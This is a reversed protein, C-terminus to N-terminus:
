SIGSSDAPSLNSDLLDADAMGVCFGSGPEPMHGSKGCCPCIEEEFLVFHDCDPNRCEVASFGVYAGPTHCVPCLAMFKLGGIM